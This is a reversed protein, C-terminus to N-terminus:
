HANPSFGKMSYYWYMSTYFFLPANEDAFAKEPDSKKIISSRFIALLVM